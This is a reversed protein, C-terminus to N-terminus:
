RDYLRWRWESRVREEAFWAVVMAVSVNTYSLRKSREGFMSRRMCVKNYCGMEADSYIPFLTVKEQVFM